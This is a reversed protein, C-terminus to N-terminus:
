FFYVSTCVVQRRQKSNKHEASDEEDTKEDNSFSEDNMKLSKKQETTLDDYDTAKETTQTAIQTEEATQRVRV